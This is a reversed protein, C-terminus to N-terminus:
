VKLNSINLRFHILELYIYIKFIRIYIPRSGNHMNIGVFIDIGYFIKNRELYKMIFFQTKDKEGKIYPRGCGQWTAM